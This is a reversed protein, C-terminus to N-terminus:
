NVYRAERWCLTNGRITAGGRIIADGEKKPCEFCIIDVVQISLIKIKKM